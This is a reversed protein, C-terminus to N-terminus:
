FAISSGLRIVDSLMESLPVAGGSSEQVGGIFSPVSKQWCLLQSSLSSHPASLFTAVGEKDAERHGSVKKKRVRGFRLPETETTTLLEM